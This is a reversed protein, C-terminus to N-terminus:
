TIIEQDTRNRWQTQAQHVLTSILNINRKLSSFFEWRLYQSTFTPKWYVSTAFSVDTEKSTYM